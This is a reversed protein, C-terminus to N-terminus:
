HNANNKLPRKHGVKNYKLAWGISQKLLFVRNNSPNLNICHLIVRNMFYQLPLTVGKTTLIHSLTNIASDKEVLSQELKQTNSSITQRLSTKNVDYIDLTTKLTTNHRAATDLQKTVVKLAHESVIARYGTM